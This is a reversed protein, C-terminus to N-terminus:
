PHNTLTVRQLSLFLTELIMLRKKRKEGEEAEGGGERRLGDQQFPGRHTVTWLCDYQKKSLLAFLSLSLCLSLSLFFPSPALDTLTASCNVGPM